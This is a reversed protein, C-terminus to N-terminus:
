CLMTAPGNIARMVALVRAVGVMAVGGHERGVCRAVLGLVPPRRGLFQGPCRQTRRVVVRVAVVGPVVQAVRVVFGIDIWLPIGTAAVNLTVPTKTDQIAFLRPFSTWSPM